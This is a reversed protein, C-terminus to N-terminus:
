PVADEVHEDDEVYKFGSVGAADPDVEALTFKLLAGVDVHDHALGATTRVTDPLRAIVVRQDGAQITAERKGWAIADCWMLVSRLIAGNRERGTWQMALPGVVERPVPTRGDTTFILTPDVSLYLRTGLTEFRLRAAHHIWSGNKEPPPVRVVWRKTGSGWRVYRTKSGEAAFFYRGHSPDFDIGYARLHAGLTDNMLEIFWRWRAVDPQWEVTAARGIASTDVFGRLPNSAATLDSFTHLRSERVIAPPFGAPLERKRELKTPASWILTPITRVPLLNSILTEEVNDPEDRSSPLAPVVRDVKGSFARRGVRGRIPAEGRVKGLLRMLERRYDNKPRFDYYALSQLFPPVKLRAGTERHFDRLRIPLLRGARNTPDAHLVSSWEASCWDSGMLEPAMVVAVFRSRELGQNLRLVINDGGDIDWKDLFVTLRRGNWEQSEIDGALDEVWEKDVSSHCLFVDKQDV